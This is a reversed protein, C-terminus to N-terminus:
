PPLHCMDLRIRSHFLNETRKEKVWGNWICVSQEWLMLTVTQPRSAEEKKKKKIREGKGGWNGKCGVGHTLSKWAVRARYNQKRGKKM